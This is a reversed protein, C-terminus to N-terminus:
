QLAAAATTVIPWPDHVLAERMRLVVDHWDNWRRQRFLRMSPYWPSRDGENLWRWDATSSLMLWVPKGLAGALHAVMTDVSIVLDLNSVVAAIDHVTVTEDLVQEIHLKSPPALLEIAALGLQLSVYRVESVDGLQALASLPAFQHRLDPHIPEGSWVLGVSRQRADLKLRARWTQVLQPDVQVYPGSWAVDEVAAPFLCPLLLLPAQLDCAPLPAGTPVALAVGATRAALDVLNRHCEVLVRGGLPKLWPVYRLLHITDSLGGNAWLLLTRGALPSGDWTPQELHRQRTDLRLFCAMQDWAKPLDGLLGHSWGLYLHALHHDPEIAVAAEFCAIAARPDHARLHM